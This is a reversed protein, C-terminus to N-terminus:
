ISKSNIGYKFGIPNPQGVYEKFSLFKEQRYDKDLKIEGTKQNRNITFKPWCEFTECLEQIL